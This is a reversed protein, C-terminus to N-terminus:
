AKVEEMTIQGPLQRAESDSEQPLDALVCGRVYEAMSVSLSAAAARLRRIEDPAFRVTIQPHGKNAM